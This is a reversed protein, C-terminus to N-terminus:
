YRNNGQLYTKRIFFSVNRCLFTIKTTGCSAFNYCVLPKVWSISGHFKGNTCYLITYTLCKYLCTYITCTCTYRCPWPHSTSGCIFRFHNRRLASGGLKVDCILSFCPERRTIDSVVGRLLWLYKLMCGVSLNHIMLCIHQNNHNDYDLISAFLLALPKCIM